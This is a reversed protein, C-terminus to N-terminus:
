LQAKLKLNKLELELNEIEKKINEIYNGRVKQEGNMLIANKSRAFNEFTLTKVRTFQNELNYFKIEGCEFCIELYAVLKKDNYIMIGDHPNFECDNSNQSLINSDFFVLLLEM